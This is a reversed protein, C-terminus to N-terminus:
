FLLTRNLIASVGINRHYFFDSLALENLCKSISRGEVGMLFWLYSLICVHSHVKGLRHFGELVFLLCYLIYSEEQLHIYLVHIDGMVNHLCHFTHAPLLVIIHDSHLATCHLQIKLFVHKPVAFRSRQYANEFASFGHSLFFGQTARCAKAPM